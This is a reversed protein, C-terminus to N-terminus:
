PKPNNKCIIILTYTKPTLTLTKLNSAKNQMVIHSTGITDFMGDFNVGLFHRKFKM